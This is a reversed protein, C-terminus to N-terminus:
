SNNLDSFLRTEYIVTKEDEQKGLDLSHMLPLILDNFKDPNEKEYQEIIAEEVKNMDSSTVKLEAIEEEKSQLKNTNKLFSYIGQTQLYDEIRKYDIDANTGQKITGFLRLLVIKDKLDRKKFEKIIESTATLTNEVSLNFSVVDKLPLM